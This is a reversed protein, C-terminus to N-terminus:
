SFGGDAGTQKVAADIRESPIAGGESLAPYSAIGGTGAAKLAASFGDEFVRRNADSKSVGIVLIHKLPSGTFAADKWTAKLEATACAAVMMAALMMWARNM